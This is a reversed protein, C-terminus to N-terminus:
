KKLLDKLNAFPNPRKEEVDPTDDEWDNLVSECDDHKPFAPLSLIVEEQVWDIVNMEESGVVIEVDEAEIPILDAQEETKTFLFPVERHIAVSMPKTCRTCLMNVTGEITLNAGPLGRDGKTGQITVALQGEDNALLKQLQPMDAVSVSEQVTLLNRSVSFIDVKLLKQNSKTM